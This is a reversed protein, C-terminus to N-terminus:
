ASAEYERRIVFSSYAISTADILSRVAEILSRCEDDEPTLWAGHAIGNRRRLLRDDIDIDTVGPQANWVTEPDIGLGHMVDDFMERNLNAATSVSTRILCRESTNSRLDSILKVVLGSKKAAAAERIQASLSAALLADNVRERTLRQEAVYSLVLEGAVKVFGEWHAYGLAVAARRLM